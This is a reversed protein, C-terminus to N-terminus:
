AVRGVPTTVAADAADELLIAAEDRPARRRARAIDQIKHWKSLRIAVQFRFLEEDDDSVADRSM